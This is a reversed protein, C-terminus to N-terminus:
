QTLHAPTAYYPPKWKLSTAHNFFDRTRQLLAARKKATQLNMAPMWRDKKHESM